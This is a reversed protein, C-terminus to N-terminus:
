GIDGCHVHSFKLHMSPFSTGLTLYCMLLLAEVLVWADPYTDECPPHDIENLLYKQVNPPATTGSVKIINPSMRINLPM